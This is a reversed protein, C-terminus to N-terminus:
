GIAFPLSTVAPKGPLTPWAVLRLRYSGPPLVNGDPDRGTLGFTYRGPLLDRVRALLGFGEGGASWLQVDLRALPRVEVAGARSDVSGARVTLRVPASDSPRFSRDSLSAGAILPGRAPRYDIAWPIRLPRGGDPVVEISGAGVDGVPPGTLRVTVKVKAVDGQRLVLRAPKAVISILEPEGAETRGTVSLHLRRTSVNRLEITKTASWKPGTRGGLALAVPLAAVEGTAAAGVDLLGAGQATVPDGDLRDATGVLLSKLEPADLRPRAQALLAAAGATVAAAASSGNVTAFSANGDGTKGPRATALGVGSAVVDPKVRADFALGRSSFAAVRGQEPNARSTAPGISVEADAGVRGAALAALAPAAPLGVVPVGVDEDLGLGGAPLQEGYLVVAAAGAEAAGEVAAAPDDGAEVLAAKGAVASFGHLDFFDTPEEAGPRRPEGPVLDLPRTAAVAGLLPVERDFLVQLGRRVVVRARDLSTRADAAGVTLAGPAGGPGAISGFGPGAAGDNGAAAVVLTDLSLAGDVARAEPSDPFAAFREALGVLAVRAADHADGDGNPDVAHELGAVIQDSRAYVAYGGRADQQWGAVRIPLISAGTAVGSLGGPGGAGAILGALETGHTEFARPDAPDAAARAGDSGGVVDIGELLRGRLYPQARDVGTDLLAVTVGSGDFGALGADARRGSGPGFRGERLVTSSVSAPFAARVPYVGQVLESRELIAIARPGLAASFGDLVRAFSHEPRIGIGQTGLTTILQQQAAFAEATWRREESTSAIGGARAVQQALSPAKLVVIARQGLSVDPGAGGVLGRWSGGGDFRNGGGSGSPGLLAAAAAVAVLALLALSSPRPTRM